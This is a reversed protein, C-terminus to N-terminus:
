GVTKAVSCIRGGKIFHRYGSQEAVKKKLELVLKRQDAQQEPTRDPTLFVNKHTVDQRLQKARSLIQHVITHNALTVKVPRAKGPVKGGLRTAEFRPKEGLKEFVVSVRSALKEDEVEKFGFMMINRSRDGEEVVEKVAKKLTAPTIALNPVTNAVADSYSKMGSQVTEEVTSKVAEQVSKLQEDKCVLLQEQLKIVSSQSDLLDSKLTVVEEQLEKMMTVQDTLYVCAQVLWSTLVPKNKKSFVDATLRLSSMVDLEQVKSEVWDDVTIRLTEAAMVDVRKRTTGM